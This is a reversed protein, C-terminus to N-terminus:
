TSCGQAGHVINLDREREEHFSRGVEVGLTTLPLWTETVRSLQVANSMEKVMMGYIGQTGAQPHNRFMDDILGWTETVWSRGTGSNVVEILAAEDIGQSRAFRVAELAVLHNMHLMLNNAIKMAQGSGLAGTRFIRESFTELVPQIREIAAADGGIMLTLAGAAVAPRSGSVPSDLLTVKPAGSANRPLLAEAERMTEPRVSSAVVLVSGERLGGALHDRVISLVQQDDVVCVFVVDCAAALAAPSPAAAAGKRTLRDVAEARLDFVKLDYGKEVIREAMAGGMDGLGIFGVALEAKPRHM